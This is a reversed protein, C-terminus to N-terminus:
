VLRPQSYKRKLLLKLAEEETMNKEIMNELFARWSTATETEKKRAKLVEESQEGVNGQPGTSYDLNKEDNRSKGARPSSKPLDDPEKVSFLILQELESKVQLFCRAYQVVELSTQRKLNTHLNECFLTMLMRSYLTGYENWKVRWEQGDKKPESSRADQLRQQEDGETTQTFQKDEKEAPTKVDKIEDKSEDMHDNVHQALAKPIPVHAKTFDPAKDALLSVNTQEVSPKQSCASVSIVGELRAFEVRLKKVNGFAHSKVVRNIAGDSPDCQPVTMFCLKLDKHGLYHLMLAYRVADAPLLLHIGGGCGRDLNKFISTM